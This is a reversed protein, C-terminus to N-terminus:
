TRWLSLFRRADDFMSTNNFMVYGDMGTELLLGKLRSLDEDSYRYNYSGRGHLRLYLMKQQAKLTETDPREQLPDFVYVVGCDKCVRLAVEVAWGRPEFCIVIGAAKNGSLFSRLNSLNEESPKFSPPSQLLVVKAQLIVAAKETKHWARGVEPTRRFFGYKDKDALDIKLSKLRRYTPSKVPHTILQWAKLTFEFDEPAEERWKRLTEERPPDYFTQQVEVVNFERYYRQRAVPFGCTGIKINM